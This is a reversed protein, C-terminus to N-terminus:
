TTTNIIALIADCNPCHLEQVDSVGYFDILIADAGKGEWPCDDCKLDQEEYDYANLIRPM